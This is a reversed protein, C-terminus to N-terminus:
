DPSQEAWSRFFEPVPVPQNQAMDVWVLTVDAESYVTDGERDRLCQHLTMSTNGMRKVTTVVKLAGPCKASAKYSINAQVVVLGVGEERTMQRITRMMETRAHEFYTMYAVNNVHGLMDLDGWRVDIPCEHRNM